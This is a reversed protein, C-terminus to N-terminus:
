LAAGPLEFFVWLHYTALLAAGLWTLFICHGATVGQKIFSKYLLWQLVPAVIMIFLKWPVFGLGYGLAMLLVSSVILGDIIRVAGEQGHVVPFSQVGAKADGALDRLDYIVEYSLEFPFFFAAAFVVTWWTVGETLLPGELYSAYVLPYAFVTIMFGMASASNKLLYMDKLRRGGPLIPYNYILGLAQYTGRFPTLWPWYWHSVLLSLLLLSWSGVRLSRKNREVFGTGVIQNEKDEKLDVVRNLLNVIFWDFGCIAAVGFLYRGTLIWGFTICGLCAIAIIHLRSVSAFLALASSTPADALPEPSLATDQSM